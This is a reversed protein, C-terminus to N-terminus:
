RERRERELSTEEARRADRAIFIIPWDITHQNIWAQGLLVVTKLIVVANVCLFSLKDTLYSSHDIYLTHTLSLLTLCCRFYLM